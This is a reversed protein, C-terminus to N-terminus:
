AQKEALPGIGPLVIKEGQFTKFIMFVWIAFYALRILMWLGFFSWFIEFVATIAINIVIVAALLFLSQFAHFRILKNRSYPEVVLFIVAVLPIYCLAGAVNDSLGSSGSTPSIPPPAGAASGAPQGTPAGCKPCFKGDVPSGCSQCFAM